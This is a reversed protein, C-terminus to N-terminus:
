QLKELLPYKKCTLIFSYDESDKAWKVLSSVEVIPSLKSFKIEHKKDPESQSVDYDELDIKFRLQLYVEESNESIESILYYGLLKHELGEINIGSEEMIERKLSEEISENPEPHGGPITWKQGDKSVLVVSDNQVLWGSVQRIELNLHSPLIKDSIIWKREVKKDM